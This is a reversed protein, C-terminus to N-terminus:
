THASLYEALDQVQANVRRLAERTDQALGAPVRPGGRHIRLLLKHLEQFGEHLQNFLPRADPFYREIADVMVHYDQTWVIVSDNIYSEWRSDYKTSNVNMAVNQARAWRGQALQVIYMARQNQATNTLFWQNLAAGLVVALLSCTCVLLITSRREPSVPPEVPPGQIIEGPANELIAPTSIDRM